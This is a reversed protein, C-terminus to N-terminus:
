PQVPQVQAAHINTGFKTQRRAEFVKADTSACPENSTGEDLPFKWKRVLFGKLERIEVRENEAVHRPGCAVGDLVEAADGFRGQFDEM